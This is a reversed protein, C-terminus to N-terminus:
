KNNKIIEKAKLLVIQKLEKPTIVTAKEGFSLVWRSIEDLGDVTFEMIASGDKQIEAKQGKIWKKNIVWQAITPAFKIKVTQTKGKVIGWANGMYKEISFDKPKTFSNNTIEMKRINDISLTRTENRLRCLGILYWNGFAFHMQYPEFERLTEERNHPSYYTIKLTKKNKIAKKILADNTDSLESTPKLDVSILDSLDDMSLNAKESALFRIKNLVNDLSNRLKKDLQPLVKEALFIAFLEGETFKIPPIRLDAAENEYYYSKKERSFALDLGLDNRLTQIDRATNRLSMGCEEAMEDLSVYKKIKLLNHIKSLRYLLPRNIDRIM